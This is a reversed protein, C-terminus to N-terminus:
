YTGAARAAKAIAEADFPKSEEGGHGPTLNPTPKAPLGDGKDPSSGGKDKDADGKDKDADPKDGKDGDDAPKRVGALKAAKTLIEEETDGTLFEALDEAEPHKRLARETWLEREAKVARDEADKSAQLKTQAEDRETKLTEKDSRLNQILTWAKAADFDDGWPPTSKDEDTADADAPKTPNDTDAM